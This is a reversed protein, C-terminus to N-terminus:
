SLPVNRKDQNLMAKLRAAASIYDDTKKAKLMNRIEKEYGEFSRSLYYWVEKLHFVADKPAMESCYGGFLRDHFELYKVRRAAPDANKGSTNDRDRVIIDTILAPSSILGRGIMVASLGPFRETIRRYDDATYIDGNYCVPHVCEQLCADFADLRPSGKYFDDRVRAHIIVERIPYRNYIRMLPLAEEPSHVGLRTKVSIGIGTCSRALGEFVADLFQDLRDPEMLMGAGKRKATVTSSPCGLNLDIERYGASALDQVAWLFDEASNTLLQPILEPVLNRAPDIDRGEKSKFSHTHNASLFPTYYRDVGPFMEHHLNRFVYGTVGEMPAFYIRSDM